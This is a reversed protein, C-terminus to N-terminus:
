LQTELMFCLANKMDTSLEPSYLLPVLFLLAEEGELSLAANAFYEETYAEVEKISEEEPTLEKLGETKKYKELEIHLQTRKKDSPRMAHRSTKSTYKKDKWHDLDTQFAMILIFLTPDIKKQTFFAPDTIRVNWVDRFRFYPRQLFAIVHDPDTPDTLTYKTRWFNLKATTLLEDTPSILDFTHYLTLVHEEVRGLPVGEVTEVDFIAGLSFFRQSATAQLEENLNYFDYATTWSFLRRHVTGIKYLDTEIDFTRTMSLWRQKVTFDNPLLVTAHLPTCLASLFLCYRALKRFM